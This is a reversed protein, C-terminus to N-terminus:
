STLCSRSCPLAMIPQAVHFAPPNCLAAPSAAAPPPPVQSPLPVAPSSTDRRTMQAGDDEQQGGALHKALVAVRHAM